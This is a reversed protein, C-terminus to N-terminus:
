GDNRSSVRISRHAHCGARVPDGRHLLHTRHAVPYRDYQSQPELMSMSLDTEVMTCVYMDRGHHSVVGDALFFFPLFFLGSCPFQLNYVYGPQIEQVILVMFTAVAFLM